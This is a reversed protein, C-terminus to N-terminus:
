DKSKLLARMASASKNSAQVGPRPFVLPQGLQGEKAGFQQAHSRGWHDITEAITAMFHMENTWADHVRGFASDAPLNQLLVTLRRCDM